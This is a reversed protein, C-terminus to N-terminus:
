VKYQTNKQEEDQAFQICASIDRKNLEPFNRIIQDPSLGANLWNLVDEVAIRMGRICPKSQRKNAEITIIKNLKM